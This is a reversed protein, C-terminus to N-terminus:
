PSEERLVTTRAVAGMTVWPIGQLAGKSVPIRHLDNLPGSTYCTPLRRSRRGSGARTPWSLVHLTRGHLSRAPPSGAILNLRVWTSITGAMAAPSAELAESATAAHDAQEFLHPYVLCRRQGRRALEHRRWRRDGRGCPQPFRTSTRLLVVGCSLGPVLHSLIPNQSRHQGPPIRLRPIPVIASPVSKPAGPSGRGVQGQHRAPSRPQPPM